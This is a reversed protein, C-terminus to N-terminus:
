FFTTYKTIIHPKRKEKRSSFGRSKIQTKCYPFKDETLKKIFKSHVIDVNNVIVFDVDNVIVLKM